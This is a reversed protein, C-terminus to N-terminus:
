IFSCTSNNSSWEWKKECRISTQIPRRWACMTIFIKGKSPVELHNMCRLVTSKGSGSPGIIVMVEGVRVKLNTDTVAVVKGFHKHLGEVRIRYTSDANSDAPM